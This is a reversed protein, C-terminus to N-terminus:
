KLRPIILNGNGFFTFQLVRVLGWVSVMVFLSVIGWFMFKRAQERSGPNQGDFFSMRFIGYLFMVLSAGIIVYVLKNLIGVLWMVVGELSLKPVGSTPESMTRNINNLDSNSGLGAGLAGGNNGGGLLINGNLPTQDTTGQSGSQNVTGQSTNDTQNMTGASGSQNVTGASGGQNTTGLSETLFSNVAGPSLDSAASEDLLTTAARLDSNIFFGIIILLIIKYIISIKM